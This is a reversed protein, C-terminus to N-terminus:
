RATANTEAWPICDCAKIQRYYKEQLERQSPLTWIKYLWYADWLALLIVVCWARRV